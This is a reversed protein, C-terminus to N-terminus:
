HYPADKVNKDAMGRYAKMWSHGKSKQKNFTKAILNYFNKM